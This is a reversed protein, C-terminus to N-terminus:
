GVRQSSLLTDFPSRPTWPRASAEFLRAAKWAILAPVALLSAVDGSSTVRSLTQSM